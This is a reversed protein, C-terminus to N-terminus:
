SLNGSFRKRFLLVALIIGTANALMDPLEFGRGFPMLYQFVEIVIGYLWLGFAIKAILQSKNFNRLHLGLLFTAVFYFIIHIIKDAFPVRAPMDVGKLSMLSALTVVFLWSIALILFVYRKLM